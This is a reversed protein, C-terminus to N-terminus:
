IWLFAIELEIYIYTFSLIYKMSNLYLGIVDDTSQISELFLKKIRYALATQFCHSEGKRINLGHLNSPWTLRVPLLSILIGSFNSFLMLTLSSAKLKLYRIYVSQNFIAKTQRVIPSMFPVFTYFGKELWQYVLRHKEYDATHSM